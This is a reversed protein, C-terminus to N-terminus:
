KKNAKIRIDVSKRTKCQRQQCTGMYLKGIGFENM